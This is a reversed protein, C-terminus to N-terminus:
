TSIKGIIFGYEGAPIDLIKVLIPMFPIVIGISLGTWLFSIAIPWLRNDLQEALLRISSNYVSYSLMFDAQNSEINLKSPSLNKLGCLVDVLNNVKEQLAIDESQHSPSQVLNSQRAIVLLSETVADPSMRPMASNENATDIGANASVDGTIAKLPNDKTNSIYIGYLRVYSSRIEDETFSNLQLLRM